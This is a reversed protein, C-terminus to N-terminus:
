LKELIKFDIEPKQNTAKRQFKSRFETNGNFFGGNKLYFNNNELVGGEYDLRVGAKATNDYTFIGETLEYWNGNTDRAWQNSFEVSRSLYGQNPSFNELFSHARKYWTDTKPRLFSAILRWQNEDTAFFYATYITNGKGDPRVQTLFKYTTGAKWNYKMYSQGGSGENGFEGIRVDEGQRLKKIQQDAPISKPDDTNFPSWVSFLVRRETPSNYQIGFYGEGFGNAMYYSNMTEGALPVTVENYFWEIDVNQPFTYGMHVSPGRKGWYNSFDHVYTIKGIPDKIILDSITGFNENMKSIGQIDIKVYGSEEVKFKGVKTVRLSDSQLAVKHTQNKYSVQVTSNGAAFFDVNLTQPKEIHFYVSIIDAPNKWNRLSDDTIRIRDRNRDREESQQTQTIYANGGLSINIVEKPPQEKCALTLFCVWM